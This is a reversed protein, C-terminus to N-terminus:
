VIATAAEAFVQDLESTEDESADNQNSFTRDLLANTSDDTEIMSALTMPAPTSVNRESTSDRSEEQTLSGSDTAVLATPVSAINTSVVEVSLATVPPAVPALDAAAFYCAPHKGYRGNIAIM